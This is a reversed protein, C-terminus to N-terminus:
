LYQYKQTKRHVYIIIYYKLKKCHQCKAASVYDCEVRHKIKNSKIKSSKIIRYKIWGYQNFTHM